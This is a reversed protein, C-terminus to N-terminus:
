ASGPKRPPRLLSHEYAVVLETLEREIRRAYTRVIGYAPRDRLWVVLRGGLRLPVEISFAEPSRVVGVAAITDGRYDEAVSGEVHGAELLTKLLAEISARLADREM